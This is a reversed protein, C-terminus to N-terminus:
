NGRFVQRLNFFYGVGRYNKAGIEITKSEQELGGLAKYFGNNTVGLLTWIIMSNCGECAFHGMIHKLLSGGIGRGQKSPDVYLGKVECDYGAVPTVGSAFGAVVGNEEHVFVVQSGDRITNEFLATYKEVSLRGPFKPDIVGTYATQWTSVLIEGISRADASKVPRIM